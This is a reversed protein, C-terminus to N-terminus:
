DKLTLVVKERWPVYRSPLPSSIQVAPRSNSDPHAVRTLTQSLRPKVREGPDVFHAKWPSSNERNWFFFNIKTKIRIIEEKM